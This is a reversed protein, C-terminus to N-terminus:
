VSKCKQLDELLLGLLLTQMVNDTRLLESSQMYLYIYTNHLYPKQSVPLPCKNAPATFFDVCRCMKCVFKLTSLCTVCLVSLSLSLSIFSISLFRYILFHPASTQTKQAWQNLFVSFFLSVSVGSFFWLRTSFSPM